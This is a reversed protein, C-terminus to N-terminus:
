GQARGKQLGWALIAALGAAASVAGLALAAVSPEQVTGGAAAWLAGQWGVIYSGRGYGLTAMAKKAMENSGM